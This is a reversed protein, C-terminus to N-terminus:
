GSAASSRRLQKELLGAPNRGSVARYTEAGLGRIADLTRGPDIVPYDSGHVIRDSGLAAVSLEISLRGYSSTEFYLPAQTFRRTDVGRSQLRELQFAAGGALLSFVVRLSPWRPAGQEVWALYASQMDATYDAVAAWWHPAGVPGPTARDPHVFLIGGSWELPDLM